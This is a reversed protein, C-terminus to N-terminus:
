YDLNTINGGPGLAKGLRVWDEGLRIACNLGLLVLLVAVIVIRPICAPCEETAEEERRALSGAFVALAPVLPLHFRSEGFTIFHSASFYLVVLILLGGGGRWGGSGIGRLCIGLLASVAILPFAAIVATAVPILLWSPVPGFFNRSYGWSLERIEPGYLYGMKRIGLDLFRGPNAVIFRLREQYGIAARHADDRCKEWVTQRLKVVVERSQLGTADPNNGILFNYGGYSDIPVIRHYYRWNRVTWPAIACLAGLLCCLAAIRERRIALWLASLPIFGVLVSRTLCALGLLIGAAFCSLGRRRETGVVLLLSVTFLFMFLNESMLLCAYIVLSPYCAIVLGAAVGARPGYLRRAIAYTFLCVGVGMLAQVLRVFIYDMGAIRYVAALFFPYLPPRLAAGYSGTALLACAKEHYDQMDSFPVGNAPLIVLALRLILALALIIFLIRGENKDPIGDRM